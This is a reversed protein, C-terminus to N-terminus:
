LGFLKEGRLSVSVRLFLDSGPFIQSSRPKGNIPPFTGIAPVPKMITAARATSSQPMEGTTSASRCCRARRFRRESASPAATLNALPLPDHADTGFWPFRRYLGGRVNGSDDNLVVDKGDVRCTLQTQQIEVQAHEYGPVRTDAIAIGWLMASTFDSPRAAPNIYRSKYRAEPPISSNSQALCVACLVLLSFARVYSHDCLYLAQSASKSSVHEFRERIPCIALPFRRARRLRGSIGCATPTRASV